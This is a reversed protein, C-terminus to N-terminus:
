MASNCENGDCIENSWDWVCKAIGLGKTDSDGIGGEIKGCTEEIENEARVM